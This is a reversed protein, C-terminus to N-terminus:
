VDSEIAELHTFTVKAKPDNWVPAMVLLMVPYTSGAFVWISCVLISGVTANAPPNIAVAVSEMPIPPLKTFYEAALFTKVPEDTAAAENIAAGSTSLMLALVLMKSVITDVTALKDERAAPDTSTYRFIECSGYGLGRDRESRVLHDVVVSLAIFWTFSAVNTNISHMTVTSVCMPSINTLPQSISCTRLSCRLCLTSHSRNWNSWSLHRSFNSDSCLEGHPAMVLCRDAHAEQCFKLLKAVLPRPVAVVRATLGLQECQPLSRYPGQILEDLVMASM